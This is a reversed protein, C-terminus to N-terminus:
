RASRRRVEASCGSRRSRSGWPSSPWGCSSPWVRSPWANKECSWDIFGNWGACAGAPRLRLYHAPATPPTPRPRAVTPLQQSCSLRVTRAARSLDNRGHKYNSKGRRERNSRPCVYPRTPDAERDVKALEPLPKKPSPGPRNELHPLKTLTTEAPLHTAPTHAARQPRTALHTLERVCRERERERKGSGVLSQARTGGPGAADQSNRTAGRAPHQSTTPKADATASSGLAVRPRRVVETRRPAALAGAVRRL